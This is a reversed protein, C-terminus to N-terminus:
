RLPRLRTVERKRVFAIQEICEALKAQDAVEPLREHTANWLELVVGEDDVIFRDVQPWAWRKVQPIGLPLLYRGEIGNSTILVGRMRARIATGIGSIGIVTALLWAPAVRGKDGETIWVFLRSTSPGLYGIAAILAVALALAAFAYSPWLQRAPPGFRMPAATAPDYAMGFRAVTGNVETISPPDNHPDDASDILDPLERDSLHLM